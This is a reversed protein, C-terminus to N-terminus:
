GGSILALLLLVAALVLVVIIVVKDIRPFISQEQEQQLQMMRYRERGRHERSCFPNEEVDECRNDTPEIVKGCNKYACHEVRMHSRTASPTERTTKVDTTPLASSRAALRMHEKSCFPNGEDDECRDDTPNIIRGCAAYSCREVEPLDRQCHPCATALEHVEQICHPCLRFNRPQPSPSPSGTSDTPQGPTSGQERSAERESPLGILVLLALFSFLFGLVFWACGGHGKKDALYSCFAGFIAGLILYGVLFATFIDM